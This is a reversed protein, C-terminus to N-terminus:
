RYKASAARRAKDAAEPDMVGPYEDEWPARKSTPEGGFAGGEGEAARAARALGWANLLMGAVIVAASMAFISFHAIPVDDYEQLVFGSLTLTLMLLASQYAPVTYAVPAGSIAFNLFGIQAVGSSAVCMLQTSLEAPSGYLRDVTESPSSSATSIGHVV